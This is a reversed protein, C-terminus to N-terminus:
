ALDGKGALSTPRAPAPERGIDHDPAAGRRHKGSRIARGSRRFPVAMALVLLVALIWFLWLTSTTSSTHRALRYRLADGGGQTGGPM